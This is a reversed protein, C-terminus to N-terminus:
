TGASVAFADLARTAYVLAAGANVSIAISLADTLEEMTAGFRQAAATHVAICGDCRLTIAVALAILERTKNDFKGSKQAASGLSVYGRVTEPSTKALAAVATKLQERYTNWDLMQESM